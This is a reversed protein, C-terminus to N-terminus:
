LAVLGAALAFAGGAAAGTATALFNVAQNGVTGGEVAAGLLSDATMGVFGALVVVAGGAPGTEFLGVTLGGVVAAGLLGALEGQWTVAGDTGPEVTEFTTVLRPSDYLGGVESSLTDAMATALSGAFAYRFLEPSLALRDGAAFLVVAAIAPAANGLVNGSGRAGGEPEAVGRTRKEAYRYKSALGGLGFFAILVVFWRYGGLVVTLLGLLVGTLMGAVSATGLVWSLAGAAVTVPLGVVVTEWDVAVGASEVLGAFLWLALGVTLVVLADERGAFVARLLAALTAGTAALFVAAPSASLSGGAFMGAGVHGAVGAATGALGFGAAAYIDGARWRGVLEVGLNGYGVLVATAVFAEVPMGFAPTLLALGTLALAFGALSALRGERRDAPRAFLAFLPGGTTFFAVVAVLGFPVAAALGLTPAALSLTAVAAYAAARRISTV